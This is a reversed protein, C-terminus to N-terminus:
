VSSLKKIQRRSLYRYKLEINLDKLISIFNENSSLDFYNDNIKKCMASNIADTIEFESYKKNLCFKMYKLITLAIFCTLFHSAIHSEKYVYVPRTKLVTKSIKFNEEIEWLSSYNKIIEEDEMNIESTVIVNLGDFMEDYEIKEMDIDLLPHLEKKEGTKKDIAYWGIYKKGGQKCSYRYKEPNTLKRAYEITEKRREKERDSYSKRWIVVVKERIIEKNLLERKRIFSKKAVTFDKNWEWGESDLAFGQIDKPVGTKGRVKSSFIYGDKNEIAASINKKSNMAKDAVTIIREFSFQKKIQKVAKVYTTPDTENGSFLEYSIPIGNTDMFLGLQIIPSLRKEKSVGRKRKVRRDEKKDDEDIEFYYNTIDYFVLYGTRKTKETIKKHMVEQLINKLKYLTDLSRSIDNQSFDWELFMNEQLSVTRLKSCPNLIRQYVLLQMIKNLDYKFKKKDQFSKIGNDIGLEKYFRELILYGYNKLSVDRISESRDLKLIIQERKSTYPIEGRKAKERLEEYANPNNKLLKDLRGFAKVLATKHKGKERWTDVLYVYVIGERNKVKQISAM